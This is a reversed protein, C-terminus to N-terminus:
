IKELESHYKSLLGSAANECAILRKNASNSMYIKKLIKRNKLDIKNRTYLPDQSKLTELAQDIQVRLDEVILWSFIELIDVNYNSHTQFIPAIDTLYGTFELRLEKEHLYDIYSKLTILFLKSVKINKDNRKVLEAFIILLGSIKGISGLQKHAHITKCLIDAINKAESDQLSDDTTINKLSNATSVVSAWLRVKTYFLCSNAIARIYSHRIETNNFQANHLYINNLKVAINRYQDLGVKNTSAPIFNAISMLTIHKNHLSPHRYYIQILSLILGSNSNKTIVCSISLHQILCALSESHEEVISTPPTELLKILNIFDSPYDYALKNMFGVVPVDKKISMAVLLEEFMDNISCSPLYEGKNLWSNVILKENLLDPELKLLESHQPLVKLSKYIELSDTIPWGMYELLKSAEKKEYRNLQNNLGGVIASIRSIRILQDFRVSESTLQKWRDLERYLVTSIATDTNNSGGQKFKNSIGTLLLIQTILPNGKSLLVIEDLQEATIPINLKNLTGECTKAINRDDIPTLKINDEFYSRRRLSETRGSNIASKWFDSDKFDREILVVRVPFRIRDFSSILKDIFKILNDGHELAYDIVIATATSPTWSNVSQSPMGRLYLFGKDWYPPLQLLSELVLRSKGLGGKIGSVTIFSLTKDSLYFQQLKSIEKERGIFTSKRKWFNLLTAASDGKLQQDVSLQLPLEPSLIESLAEIEIKTKSYHHCLSVIIKQDETLKDWEKISNVFGESKGPTSLLKYVEEKREELKNKACTVKDVKALLLTHLDQTLWRYTDSKSKLLEHGRNGSGQAIKKGADLARSLIFPAIKKILFRSVFPSICFETSFEDILFQIGEESKFYYEYNTSLSEVSSEIDMQIIGAQISSSQRGIFM